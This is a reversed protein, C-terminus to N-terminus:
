SPANATFTLALASMRVSSSASTVVGVARQAKECELMRIREDYRVVVAVDVTAVVADKVVVSAQQRPPDQADASRLRRQQRRVHTVVIDVERRVERIARQGVEALARRRAADHVDGSAPEQELIANVLLDQQVVEAPARHAHRERETERRVEGVDELHAAHTPFAAPRM